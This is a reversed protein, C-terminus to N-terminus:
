TLTAYVSLFGVDGIDHMANNLNDSNQNTETGSCNPRSGKIYYNLADKILGHGLSRRKM